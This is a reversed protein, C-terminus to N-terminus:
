STKVNSKYDILFFEVFGFILGGCVQLFDTENASM